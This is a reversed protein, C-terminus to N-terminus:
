RNVCHPFSSPECGQGAGKRGWLSLRSPQALSGRLALLPRPEPALVVPGSPSLARASIRVLGPDRGRGKRRGRPLRALGSFPATGALFGMATQLRAKQVEEGVGEM